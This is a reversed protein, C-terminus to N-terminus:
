VIRGAPMDPLHQRLGTGDAGQTSPLAAIDL